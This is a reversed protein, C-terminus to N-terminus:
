QFTTLADIFEFLMLIFEYNGNYMLYLKLIKDEVFKIQHHDIGISYQANHSHDIRLTLNDEQPM